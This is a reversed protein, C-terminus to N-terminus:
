SKWKGKDYEAHTLIDRIYLKNRNYHIAAILRINNGLINFVTLTDGKKNKVIDASPFVARLENFNSFNNKSILQYWAGLSGKADSHLKIFAKIQSQSIIHM